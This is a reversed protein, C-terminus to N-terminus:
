GWRVFPVGEWNMPKNPHGRRKRNSITSTLQNASRLTPLFDHKGTQNFFDAADASDVRSILARAKLDHRRTERLLDSDAVANRDIAAAQGNRGTAGFLKGEIKERLSEVACVQLGQALFAADIELAGERGISTEAAMKHLAVHIASRAYNRQLFIARIM